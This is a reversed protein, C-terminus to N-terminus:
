VARSYTQPHIGRLLSEVNMWTFVREYYKELSKCNALSPFPCAFTISYSRLAFDGKYVKRFLKGHLRFFTSLPTDRTLSPPVASSFFHGHFIKYEERISM